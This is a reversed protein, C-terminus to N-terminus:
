EPKAALRLCLERLASEAEERTPERATAGDPTERAVKLAAIVEAWDELSLPETPEAPEPPDGWADPDYFEARDCARWAADFESTFLREWRAEISRSADDLARRIDPQQDFNPAVEFMILVFASVDRDARLGNKRARAIGARISSRLMDDSQRFTPHQSRVKALIQEVFRAPDGESWRDIQNRRITLMTAIGGEVLSM